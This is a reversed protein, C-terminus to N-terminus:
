QGAVIRKFVGVAPQPLTGLLNGAADYIYVTSNVALQDTTRDLNITLILKVMGTFEVSQGSRLFVATSVFEHNGTRIWEGHGASVLEFTGPRTAVTVPRSFIARGDAMFSVLTPALTSGANGVWTGALQTPEGQNGDSDARLFTATVVLGAVAVLLPFKSKASRLLTGMLRGTKLYSQKTNIFQM